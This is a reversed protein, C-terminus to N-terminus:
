ARPGRRDQMAAREDHDDQESRQERSRQAHDFRSRDLELAHQAGLAEALATQARTLERAAASLRAQAMRLGGRLARVIEHQRRLYAAHRMLAQGLTRQGPEAHLARAKGLQTTQDDFAQQAEAATQGALRHESAAAALEGEAHARALERTELVPALPYGPRPQTM